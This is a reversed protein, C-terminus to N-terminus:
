NPEALLYGMGDTALVLRHLGADLRAIQGHLYHEHQTLAAAASRFPLSQLCVLVLAAAVACNGAGLLSWHWRHRAASVPAPRRLQVRIRSPFDEWYEESQAPLPVSRLKAELELDNM